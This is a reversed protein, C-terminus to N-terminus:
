TEIREYGSGYNTIKYLILFYFILIILKVWETIVTAESDDPSPTLPNHEVDHVPVADKIFLGSYSHASNNWRQECSPM